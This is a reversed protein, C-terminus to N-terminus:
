MEPLPCDWSRGSRPVSGHRLSTVIGTISSNGAASNALIIVASRSPMPMTTAMPQDTPLDGLAAPWLQSVEPPEPRYSLRGLGLGQELEPASPRHPRRWSLFRCLVRSDLWWDLCGRALPRGGRCGGSCGAGPRWWRLRGTFTPWFGSARAATGGRGRGAAAFQRDDLALLDPQDRGSRFRVAPRSPGNM